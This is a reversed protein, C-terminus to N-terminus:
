TPGRRQRLRGGRLGGAFLQGTMLLTLTRDWLSGLLQGGLHITISGAIPELEGGCGRSSPAASAVLAFSSTVSRAASFSARRFPKHSPSTAPTTGIAKEASYLGSVRKRVRSSSPLSRASSCGSRAARTAKMTAVLADQLSDSARRSSTASFRASDQQATRLPRRAVAGNRDDALLLLREQLERHLEGLARVAHQERWSAVVDM